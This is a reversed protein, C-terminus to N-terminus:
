LYLSATFVIGRKLSKQADEFKQKLEMNGIIKAADTLQSLLEDLRRFGRVITGEYIDQAMECIEKFKAGNCWRHVLEMMDPSFKKIYDDKDIPIKSEAMITAVREAIIQLQNFPQALTQDKTLKGESKNDTYILCSCLAAITTADLNQFIGSFILETALIEDTASIRCAVKGKLSTVDNKDCMDLRRMVRKMNVLEQSMIMESAKKVADELERIEEKLEIKREFQARQM